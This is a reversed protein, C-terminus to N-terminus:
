PADELREASGVFAEGGLNVAHRLDVRRKGALYVLLALTEPTPKCLAQGANADQLNTGEKGLAQVVLLGLFPSPLFAIDDVRSANPRQQAVQLVKASSL